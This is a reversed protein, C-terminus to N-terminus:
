FSLCIIQAKEIIHEGRARGYIPKVRIRAALATFLSGFM